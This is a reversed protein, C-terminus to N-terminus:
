EEGKGTEVDEGVFSYAYEEGSVLNVKVLLINEKREWSSTAQDFTLAGSDGTAMDSTVQAVLYAVSSASQAQHQREVALVRGLYFQLFLVFIASMLLAYLLIGAKVKKNLLM